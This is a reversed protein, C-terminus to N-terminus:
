QGDKVEGNKLIDQRFIVCNNISDPGRYFPKNLDFGATILKSEILKEPYEAEAIDLNSINVEAILKDAMFLSRKKIIDEPKDLFRIEHPFCENINGNEDEVIAFTEQIVGGCHGGIM